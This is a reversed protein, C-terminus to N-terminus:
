SSPGVTLALSGVAMALSGVALGFLVATPLHARLMLGGPNPEPVGPDQTHPAPQVMLLKGGAAATSHAPTLGGGAITLGGAAMTVGGSVVTRVAQGVKLAAAAEALPTATVTLLDAAAAVYRVQASRVVGDKPLREDQETHLDREQHM